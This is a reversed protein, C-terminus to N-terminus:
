ERPEQVEGPTGLVKEILDDLETRLHCSSVVTIALIAAIVGIEVASPNQSM